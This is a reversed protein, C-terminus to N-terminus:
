LFPTHPLLSLLVGIVVSDDFSASPWSCVPPTRSMLPVSDITDVTTLLTSL